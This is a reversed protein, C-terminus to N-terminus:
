SELSLLKMLAERDLHYRCIEQDNCCLVPIAESYEEAWDPNTDIDRVLISAKGRCLPELELLLDDCLHCGRRSYLVLELM